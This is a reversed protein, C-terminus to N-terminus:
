GIKLSVSGVSRCNQVPNDYASVFGDNTTNKDQRKSNLYWDATLSWVSQGGMVFFIFDM